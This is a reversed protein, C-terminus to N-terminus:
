QWFKGKTHISAINRDIREYNLDDLNRQASFSQCDIFFVFPIRYVGFFLVSLLNTSSTCYLLIGFPCVSSYSLVTFILSFFSDTYYLYVCEQYRRTENANRTGRFKRRKTKWRRKSNKTLFIDSTRAELTCASRLRRKNWNKIASSRFQIICHVRPALAGFNSSEHWHFCNAESYRLYLHLCYDRFLPNLERVIDWVPVYIIYLYLVM